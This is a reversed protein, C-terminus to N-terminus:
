TFSKLQNNWDVNNIARDHSCCFVYSPYPKKDSIYWEDNALLSLYICTNGFRFKFCTIDRGTPCEVVEEFNISESILKERLQNIKLGKENQRKVLENSQQWIQDM